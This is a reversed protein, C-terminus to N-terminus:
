AGPSWESGGSWHEQKWIPARAKLEDILFRGAEFAADRHSASVAVAVSPEGVDVRGTRHEVVVALVPWRARAEDVIEAVKAEVHERYAEYMLHTIGSRAESHDRATGVFLVVAGADPRGVEAPLSAPDLADDKVSIRTAPLRDM